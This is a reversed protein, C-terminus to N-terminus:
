TQLTTFHFDAQSYSASAEKTKECMGLWEACSPFNMVGMRMGSGWGAYNTPATSLIRTRFREISGSEQDVIAIAAMESVERVGEVGFGGGRM